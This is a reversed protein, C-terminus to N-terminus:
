SKIGKGHSIYIWSTKVWKIFYTLIYFTKLSRPCITSVYRCWSESDIPPRLPTEEEEEAVNNSSNAAMALEVFNFAPYIQFNLWKEDIKKFRLWWLFYSSCNTWSTRYQGNKNSGPPTLHDCKSPFEFISACRACTNSSVRNKIQKPCKNLDLATVLRIWYGSCVLKGEHMFLMNQTVM